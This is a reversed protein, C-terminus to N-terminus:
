AACVGEKCRECEECFPSASQLSLMQAMSLAVGQVSASPVGSASVSAGGVEIPVSSFIGEPGINIWHGGAQITAHTGGDIVV